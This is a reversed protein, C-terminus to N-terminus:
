LVKAKPSALYAYVGNANVIGSVIVCVLPIAWGSYVPWIGIIILSIGVSIAITAFLIYSGHHVHWLADKRQLVLATYGWMLFFLVTLALGPYLFVNYTNKAAIVESVVGARYTILVCMIAIIGRKLCTASTVPEFSHINSHSSM